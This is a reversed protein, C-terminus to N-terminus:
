NYERNFDFALYAPAIFLLSLVASFGTPNEFSGSSIFVGGVAILLWLNTYITM